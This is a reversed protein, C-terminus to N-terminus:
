TEEAPPVPEFLCVPALPLLGAGPPPIGPRREPLQAARRHVAQPPLGPGRHLGRRSIRACPLRKVATTPTPPAVLQPESLFRPRPVGAAGLDRASAPLRSSPPDEPVPGPLHDRRLGHGAHDRGGLPVPLCVAAPSAPSAPVADPRRQSPAPVAPCVELFAFNKDQNIQVALVPNSPAQSLGALRMQANFFEAMSEQPVCVPASLLLPVGPSVGPSM